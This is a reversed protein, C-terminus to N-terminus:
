HQPLDTCCTFLLKVLFLSLSKGGLKLKNVVRWRSVCLRINLEARIVPQHYSPGTTVLSLLSALEDEEVLGGELPGELHSRGLAMHDSAGPMRLQILYKHSTSITHHSHEIIWALRDPSCHQADHLLSCFCLLTVPKGGLSDDGGVGQGHELLVLPPLAGGVPLHDFVPLVSLLRM